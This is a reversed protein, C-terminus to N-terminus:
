CAACNCVFVISLLLNAGPLENPLTLFTERVRVTPYHLNQRLKRKSSAEMVVCLNRTEYGARVGGGGRGIGLCARASTVAARRSFSWRQCCISDRVPKQTTLLGPRPASAAARLRSGDKRPRRGGVGWCRRRESSRSSMSSSMRDGPVSCHLDSGVLLMNIHCALLFVEQLSESM